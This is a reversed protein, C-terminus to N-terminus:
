TTIFFFLTHLFYDRKAKNRKSVKDPYFEQKKMKVPKAFKRYFKQRIKEM